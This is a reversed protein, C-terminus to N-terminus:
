FLFVLSCAVVSPTDCKSNRACESDGVIEVLIVENLMGIMLLPSWRVPVVSLDGLIFLSVHQHGPKSLHRVLDHQICLAGEWGWKM